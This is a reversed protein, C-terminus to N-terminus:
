RSCIREPQGSNKPPPNIMIGDAHVSCKKTNSVKTSQVSEGDVFVLMKLLKGIVKNVENESLGTVKKNEFTIRDAWAAWIIWDLVTRLLNQKKLGPLPLNSKLMLKKPM